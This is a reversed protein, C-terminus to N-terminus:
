KLMDKKIENWTKVYNNQYICNANIMTIGLYQVTKRLILISKEMLESQKEMEMNKILMKANQKNTKFGAFVGGFSKEM